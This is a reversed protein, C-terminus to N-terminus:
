SPRQRDRYAPPGGWDDVRMSSTPAMAARCPGPETRIWVSEWATTVRLAAKALTPHDRDSRKQALRGSPSTQDRQHRLM